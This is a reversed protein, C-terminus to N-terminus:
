KVLALNSKPISTFVKDTTKEALLAKIVKAADTGHYKVKGEVIGLCQGEYEVMEEPKLVSLGSPRVVEEKKPMIGDGPNNCLFREMKSWVDRVM